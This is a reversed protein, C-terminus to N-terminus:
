LKRWEVIMGSPLIMAEGPRQNRPPRYGRVARAIASNPHNAMTAFVFPAGKPFRFTIEYREASM